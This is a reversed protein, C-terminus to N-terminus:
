DLSPRKEPDPETMALILKHEEHHPELPCEETHEIIRDQRLQKFSRM